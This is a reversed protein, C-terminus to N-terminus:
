GDYLIHLWLHAHFTLLQDQISHSTSLSVQSTLCDIMEERLNWIPFYVIYKGKIKDLGTTILHAVYFTSICSYMRFVM